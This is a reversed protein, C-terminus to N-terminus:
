SKVDKEIRTSKIRIYGKYVFHMYKYVAYLQNKIKKGGWDSLRQRNIPAHSVM